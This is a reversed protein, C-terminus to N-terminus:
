SNSSQLQELAAPLWAPMGDVEALQRMRTWYADWLPSEVMKQLRWMLDTRAMEVGRPPATREEILTGNLDTFKVGMRRLSDVYSEENLMEQKTRRGRRGGRGRAMPMGPHWKRVHLVLDVDEGKYFEMIDGKCIDVETYYDRLGTVIYLICGSTDFRRYRLRIPTGSSGKASIYQVPQAPTLQPLLTEAEYKPVVLRGALRVSDSHSLQKSFLFQLGAVKSDEEDHTRIDQRPPEATRVESPGAGDDTRKRKEGAYPMLGLDLTEPSDNTKAEDKSEGAAMDCREMAAGM